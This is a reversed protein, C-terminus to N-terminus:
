ETGAYSEDGLYAEKVRPDRRIEEPAGTALVEGYQIVTIIDALNFIVEMDHEIIVLTKGQTVSGILKIAERTEDVSMGATPEDLLILAPDSAVTLAIELARQGGYALNGALMDRKDALGTKELLGDTEASSRNGATSAESFISTSVINPWSSPASMRM